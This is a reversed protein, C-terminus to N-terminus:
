ELGKWVSWVGRKWFHGIEFNPAQHLSVGDLKRDHGWRVHGNAHQFIKDIRYGPQEDSKARLIKDERLHAIM